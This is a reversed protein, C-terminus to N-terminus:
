LSLLFPPDSRLKRQAGSSGEASSLVMSAPTIRKEHAVGPVPVGLAKGSKEKVEKGLSDASSLVSAQCRPVRIEWSWVEVTYFCDGALTM